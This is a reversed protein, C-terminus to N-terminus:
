AFTVEDGDTLAVVPSIELVPRLGSTAADIEVRKGDQVPVLKDIHATEGSPATVTDGVRVVGATVYVGYVLPGSGNPRIAIEVTALNKTM